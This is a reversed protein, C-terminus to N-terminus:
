RQSALCPYQISQVCSRASSRLKNFYATEEVTKGQITGMYQEAFKIEARSIKGFKNYEWLGNAIAEVRRKYADGSDPKLSKLYAAVTTPGKGEQILILANDIATNADADSLAKIEPIRATETTAGPGDPNPHSPPLPETAPWCRRPQASM